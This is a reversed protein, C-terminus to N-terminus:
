ATGGMLRFMHQVPTDDHMIGVAASFHGQDRIYLNGEPVGWRAVLNRGEDFATVSDERGLVVVIRDPAMCPKDDPDTLPSLRQLSEDTWGAKKLARDLGFVEGLESDVAVQRLSGSTTVLLLYDARLPAPWDKARTAAMQTTLAGLSTGGIAVAHSGQGRAWATLIAIDALAVRFLDPGGRPATALLPEGGYYGPEMRRGHWPAEPAIVRLGQRILAHPIGATTGWMESEVCLGHCLIATPLRDPPNEPEYVKAWATKGDKSQFRLWSEWGDPGPVRHSREVAPLPDPPAYFAAPEAVAGELESLLATPAPIDWRVSPLGDKTLLPALLGRSAMWVRAATRRELEAEVLRSPAPATDGFYVREWEDHVRNYRRRASRIGQLAQDLLWNDPAIGPPFPVASLFRDVDGETASAAAWLRSLPFYWALNGFAARDLWPRAVWDGFRHKLLRDPALGRPLRDMKDWDFFSM